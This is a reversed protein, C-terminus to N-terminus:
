KPPPRNCGFVIAVDTVKGSKIEDCSGGFFTVTNTKPDYEWGTAKTPDRPVETTKDFFVYIKSPDPPTKSLSFTCGLTKSAITSLAKDLSAADDAQYYKKTPDATPVGGATAFNNLSSATVSKGFGVVFTPIGAAFMDGLIKITGTDAGAVSCGAQGGDTMLLAYSKRTKDKFAPEFSAQQVATDINTVCPGDPYNPDTTSLAATLLKAIAAENGPGVPIPIKGQNCKDADTDPFMTLGFRIRDKYVTTMKQMAAVAVQWKNETATVAGTMSCSRDLVVLLNAPIVTATAYEAGCDGGPVCKKTAADCIMGSTCDAGTACTGTPICTNTASCFLGAGCAPDCGLGFPTDGGGTGDLVFSTDGNGGDLSDLGGGGDAGSCGVLLVCVGLVTGVRLRTM